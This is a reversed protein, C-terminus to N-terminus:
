TQDSRLPPTCPFERPRRKQEDRRDRRRPVSRGPDCVGLKVGNERDRILRESTGRKSGRGSRVRYQGQLVFVGPGIRLRKPFLCGPGRCVPPHSRPLRARQRQQRRLSLLLSRRLPPLHDKRQPVTPTPIPLYPPSPIPFPHLSTIHLPNAHSPRFRCSM